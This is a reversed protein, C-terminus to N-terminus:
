AGPAAAPDPAPAGAALAAVFNAPEEGLGLDAAAREIAAALDAVALQRARAAEGGAGAADPAAAGPRGRAGTPRADM